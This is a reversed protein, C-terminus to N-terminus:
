SVILSFYSRYYLIFIHHIYLLFINLIIFIIHVIQNYFNIDFPKCLFYGIFMEVQYKSFMEQQNLHLCKISKTPTYSSLKGHTILFLIFQKIALCYLFFHTKPMHYLCLWLRDKIESRPNAKSHDRDGGYPSLHIGGRPFLGLDSIHYMYIDHQSWVDLSQDHWSQSIIM